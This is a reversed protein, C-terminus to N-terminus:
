GAAALSTFLGVVLLVGCIVETSSALWAHFKGPRVGLSASWGATGSIKGGGIIRNIGHALMVAGVVARLLFLCLDITNTDGM